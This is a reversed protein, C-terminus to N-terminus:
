FRFLHHGNACHNFVSRTFYSILLHMLPCLNKKPANKVKPAGIKGLVFCRRQAINRLLICSVLCILFGNGLEDKISGAIVERGYLTMCHEVIIYPGHLIISVVMGGHFDLSNLVSQSSVIGFYIFNLFM